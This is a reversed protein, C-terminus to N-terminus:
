RERELGRSEPKEHRHREGGDEPQKPL